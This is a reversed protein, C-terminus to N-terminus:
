QLVLINCAGCNVGGAMNRYPCVDVPFVSTTFDKSCFFWTIHKIGRKNLPLCITSNNSQQTNGQELMAFVTTTTTLGFMFLGSGDYGFKTM